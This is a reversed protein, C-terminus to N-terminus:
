QCRSRLNVGSVKTATPTKPKADSQINTKKLGHIHNLLRKMLLILDLGDQILVMVGNLIIGSKYDKQIEILLGDRVIDIIFGDVQVELRDGARAYWAKLAAHLPKENFTSIQNAPQAETM